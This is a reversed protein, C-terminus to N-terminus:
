GATWRSEHESEWKWFASPALVRIGRFPDLVLLGQDGSIIAACEGALAAETALSPPHRLPHSECCQRNNFVFFKLSERDRVIRQIRM